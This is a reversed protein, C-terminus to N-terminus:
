QKVETTTEKGKNVANHYFLMPKYTFEVFMKVQDDLHKSKEGSVGIFGSTGPATVNTGQISGPELHVIHNETGRDVKPFPPLEGTSSTIPQRLFYGLVTVPHFADMATKLRYGDMKRGKQESALDALAELLSNELIETKKGNFFDTKTNGELAKLFLTYGHYRDSLIQVASQGFVNKYGAFEDEFVAPIVRTWWSNFVAAGPHDCFGDGDGDTLLNNWQSLLELAEITEPKTPNGDRLIKVMRDKINLAKKDYFAITKIMAKLDERGVEKKAEALRQLTTVRDDRGWGGWVDSTALDGHSWGPAPQNNWNIVFGNAPNSAHPNETKPLFGQWEYEGTGPAPLRIDYGEPRIPHLGLHYYAIDGDTTAFFYNISMDSQQAAKNFEQVTEANMLDFFSALGQLFTEKCSLRKSFAVHHAADVFFVPGHVTYLEEKTVPQPKGKVYFTHTRVDMDRWAGQYWYQGPNDPNLKEAYIDEINDIGATSSFAARRNHGFMIFPYGTLTSGVVDIGAGHLGVEYLASPLQFGFQPGGMLQSRGTSSRSPAVAVAYSAPHGYGTWEAFFRGEARERALGSEAQFAVELAATMIPSELGSRDALMRGRPLTFRRDITTPSQPDYEWCWDDFIARGKEPGHKGVLFELVSANALEASVDMFFGMVSLFDAAVDESSWPTPTFNLEKFEKPLKNAPDSVTEAIFANIGAAYSRLVTRLEPRLQEVQGKVQALTLNDRRNGQDFALLNEGLVESLRGWFTRRFLEIQFLRDQATAYGFGFFLGELSDSYVHAVGYEDRVIEAKPAQALAPVAAVTLLVTAAVFLGIIIRCRKLM